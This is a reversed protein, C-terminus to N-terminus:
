EMYDKFDELPEDFAPSIYKVTGALTGLKRRKSPVSLASRILRAVTQNGETILLEEGPILQHILEPLSAQAEEITVAPM